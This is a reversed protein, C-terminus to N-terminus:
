KESAPTDQSPYYQKLLEDFSAKQHPPEESTALPMPEYEANLDRLIEKIYDESITPTKNKEADLMKSIKDLM